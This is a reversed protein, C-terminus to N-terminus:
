HAYGRRMDEVILPRDLTSPELLQPRRDRPFATAARLTEADLFRLEPAAPSLVPEPAVPGAAALAFGWDGFSPVHVHFPTVAFGASGITAITRWFATPTSFPSGSQVTLLGGPALVRGVMGYFETSYLRGLVPTDPDPLDVVVADFGATPATRLWGFADDLVLRMRPDDLSGANLGALRTRALEV